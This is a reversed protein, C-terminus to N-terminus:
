SLEFKEKLELLRKILQKVLNGSKSQSDLSIVESFRTLTNLSKVLPFMELLIQLIDPRFPNHQERHAWLLEKMKQKCMTVNGM